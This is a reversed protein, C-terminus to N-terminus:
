KQGVVAGIGGVESIQWDHNSDITISYTATSQLGDPAQVTKTEVGVFTDVAYIGNTNSRVKAVLPVATSNWQLPVLIQEMSAAASSLKEKLEPTTGKVLNKKWADPNKADIKAADVAYDLAVREAHSNDAAQRAQGDLKAKEGLYLWTMIGVSALLATVLMAALLTRISVSVRRGGATKTSKGQPDVAEPEEDDEDAATTDVTDPQAADPQSQADVVGSEDAATIDASDPEAIDTTDGKGPMSVGKETASKLM